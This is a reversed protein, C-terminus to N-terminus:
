GKLATRHMHAQAQYQEFIQQYAAHAQKDPTYHTKTHQTQASDNGQPLSSALSALRAAGYAADTVINQTYAPAGQIDAMCQAWFPSQAGGGLLAFQTVDQGTRAALDQRVDYLAFGIGEYLARAIDAQNTNLTLGSLCARLDANWHPAREGLLYPHFLVGNAGIPATAALKEMKDFSINNLLIQRAWNLADTCTNMGSAFYWGTHTQETQGQGTHANIPVQPYCSIPPCARATECCLSVVGASALKIAADGQKFLGAGFLEISTDIAGVYVPTGIALGFKEAALPQVQGALDTAQRIPPLIDTRINALACLDPSWNQTKIDVLQTGVADSFDTLFDGTLQHRLWDKAPLLHKAQALLSPTHTALWRLHALTWTANPRHLSAAIITASHTELEAVEDAARQDSWLIAPRLPTFDADTLVGIHTGATISIATIDNAQYSNDQLLAAITQQMAERWDQPNQEAHKPHPRSTPIPTRATALVEGDDRMLLAKLSSAGLDLGLFIM